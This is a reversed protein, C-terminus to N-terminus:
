NGESKMGVPFSGLVSAAAKALRECRALEEPDVRHVVSDSRRAIVGSDYVVTQNSLVNNPWETEEPDGSGYADICPEFVKAFKETGFEIIYDTVIRRNRGRSGLSPLYLQPPPRGTPFM